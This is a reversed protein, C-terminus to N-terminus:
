FVEGEKKQDHKSLLGRTCALDGAALLQLLILLRFMTMRVGTRPCCTPCKSANCFGVGVGRGAEELSRRDQITEERRGGLDFM